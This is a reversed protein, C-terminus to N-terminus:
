IVKQYSKEAEYLEGKQFLIDGLNKESWPNKKNIEISLRFSSIASDLEGIEQFVKGLKHHVVWWDPKLEIAKQYYNIAENFDEIKLSIDGLNQYAGVCSSNLRIAQQFYTIAEEIEGNELCNKGQKLYELAQPYQAELNLAQEQCDRALEVKGLQQWIKGLNRYFGPLNPKDWYSRPLM